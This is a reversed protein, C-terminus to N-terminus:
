ANLQGADAAGIDVQPAALYRKGTRNYEAMFTAASDLLKSATYM